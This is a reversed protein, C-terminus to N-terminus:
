RKPKPPFNTALYNTILAVEEPKITAGMDIMSKVVIEWDEKTFGTGTIPELDHCGTCITQVVEKGNGNPLDQALALTAASVLAAAGSIAMAAAAIWPIETKSM